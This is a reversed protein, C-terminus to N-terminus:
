VEKHILGTSTCVCVYKRSRAQCTDPPRTCLVGCRRGRPLWIRHQSVPSMPSIEKKFQRGTKSKQVIAMHGHLTVRLPHLVVEYERM